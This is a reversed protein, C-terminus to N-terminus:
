GQLRAAIAAPTEEVVNHDLERVVLKTLPASLCARLEGLFAPPAILVLEALQGSTRLADLHAALERAFAEAEVRGTDTRPEMGHHTPGVGFSRGTRDTTIDRGHLRGRPHAFDEREELATGSQVFLRARSSEAALIWTAGSM